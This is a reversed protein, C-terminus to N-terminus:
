FGLVRGVTSGPGHILYLLKISISALNEWTINVIYEKYTHAYFIILKRSADFWCGEGHIFSLIVVVSFLGHVINCAFLKLEAMQSFIGNGPIM